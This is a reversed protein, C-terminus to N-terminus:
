FYKIKLKRSYYTSERHHCENMFHIRANGLIEFIYEFRSFNFQFKTQIRVTQSM